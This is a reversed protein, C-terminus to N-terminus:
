RHSIRFMNNMYHLVLRENEINDFSFDLEMYKDRLRERNTTSRPVALQWTRERRKLNKATVPDLNILESEQYDTNFKVTDFTSLRVDGNTDTVETHWEVNGFTKTYIPAENVVYKITSDFVNGYFEGYNGVNHKYMDNPERPDASLVMGGKSIYFPSHFDYFSTFRDTYESFAVTTANDTQVTFAALDNAFNTATFATTVEYTAPVPTFGTTDIVEGVEYSETLVYLRTCSIGHFTMVLENNKEDFYGNIGKGKLPNDGIGPDGSLRVDGELEKCFYSFLGKVDSMAETNQGSTRYFKNTNTDFWYVGARSTIVSWQHRTGIKTSYYQHDHLLGGAGLEVDFGDSGQVISRPNISMVGFGTDQFFLMTDNLTELKNIPGYDGEVDYFQNVPWSSWSDVTEGNIKPESAYIRTDYDEKDSFEIPRPFFSKVNPERSYLKNYEFTEGLDNGTGNDPFDDREFFVGQRLDVNVQSESPFLMVRAVGVSPTSGAITGDEAGDAILSEGTLNTYNWPKIVKEISSVTMFTDGGFIDDDFSTAVDCTVSRYHSTTIYVNNSRSEFTNGGYQKLLDRVYNLIYGTGPTSAGNLNFEFDLSGDIISDYLDDATRLLLVKEGYGAGRTEGSGPKFIGYTENLFLTGDDLTQTGYKPLKYFEEIDTEINQDYNLSYTTAGAKYTDEYFKMVEISGPHTGTNVRYNYDVVYATDNTFTYTDVTKIKDGAKFSIDDNFMHEPATLTFTDADGATISTIADNPDPVAAISIYNSASHNSSFTAINSCPFMVSDGSELDRILSRVDPSDDIAYKPSTLQALGQGIISKNAEDREVRVISYGSVKDKVTTPLTVNFDIYPINLTAVGGSYRLLKGDFDGNIYGDGSGYTVRDPDYSPPIKIDGIWQAFGPNGGKDYFVIAFRYTEDRQYGKLLGFSNPYRMGETNFGPYTTNSLTIDPTNSYVFRVPASDYPYSDTTNGIQKQDATMTRTKIEYEIYTGTGGYLTSSAKFKNLTLDDNIADAKETVLTFDTFPTGDINFTTSSQLHNYARADFDLDLIERKVNGAFLRNDKTTLTKAHTFANTIANLETSTIDLLNEESNTYCGTIEGNSPIFEQLFSTIVPESFENAYFIVAVEVIDFDTDLDEIIFCIAKGTDTNSTSGVFDAYDNPDAHTINILPTPISFTTEGGNTARLRYSMQYMGSLVGGGSIVETVAINTHKVNPVLDLSEVSNTFSFGDAVNISRIPNYDDTWYIKQVCDNEWRGKAEIPYDTSFDLVSNYVLTPQSFTEKVQDYVLKWIQGDGQDATTFVYINDRITASGLPEHNSLVPLLDVINTLETDVSTVTMTVGTLGVISITNCKYPAAVYDLSPLLAFDANLLDILENAQDEPSEETINEVYPVGDITITVTYPATGDVTLEVVNSTTPYNFALENGKVNILGGFSQGEDDTSVRMNDAHLYTNKAQVTKATDKNIGGTFNNGSTKRM